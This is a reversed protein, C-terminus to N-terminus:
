TNDVMQQIINSVTERIHNVEKLNKSINLAHDKNLTVNYERSYEKVTTHCTNLVTYNTDVKSFTAKNFDELMSFALLSLSMKGREENHSQINDIMQNYVPNHTCQLYDMYLENLLVCQVYQHTDFGLFLWGM